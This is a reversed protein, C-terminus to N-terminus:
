ASVRAPRYTGDPREADLAQLTADVADGLTEALGAPGLTWNLGLRLATDIDVFGAVGEGAMIRAENVIQAATRLALLGPADPVEVLAAGHDRATEILRGRTERALGAAAFALTPASRWDVAGVDVLALGKAGARAAATRGDTVAVPAVEALAALLTGRDAFRPREPAARPYSYFGHGTSRGRLGAAALAKTRAIPRLRAPRSLADYVRRSAAANADTGVLDILEFPGLPVGLASKLAADIHHADALGAELMRGPELYFPRAGRNVVFGPSDAAHVPTKGLAEVFGSLVPWAEDPCIVEVLNMRHAPNFFHLGALDPRGIAAGLERISLSSTNSALWAQPAAAAVRRFLEAKADLDEVIAEIALDIGGLEAVEAPQLRGMAAAWAESGLRGKDVDRSLGASIEEIAQQAREPGADVLQVRYGALAAVRAVGTGMRGAGLVGIRAIAGGGSM